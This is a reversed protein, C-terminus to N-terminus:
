VTYAKNPEFGLRPRLSLLLITLFALSDIIGAAFVGNAASDYYSIRTIPRPTPQSMAPEIGARLRTKKLGSLHCM